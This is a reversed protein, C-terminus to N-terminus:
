FNRRCLLTMYKRENRFWFLKKQNKMQIMEMFIRDITQSRCKVVEFYTTLVVFNADVLVFIFINKIQFQFITSNSSFSMYKIKNHIWKYSLFYMNTVLLKHFQLKVIQFTCM